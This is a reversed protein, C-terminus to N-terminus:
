RLHVGRIYKYLRYVSRQMADNFSQVYTPVQIFSVKYLYTRVQLDFPKNQDFEILLMPKRYYRTM